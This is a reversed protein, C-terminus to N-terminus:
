DINVQTRNGGALVTGHLVDCPVEAIAPQIYVLVTIIHSFERPVYYPGVGDALLETDPCCM